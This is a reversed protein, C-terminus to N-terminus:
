SEKPRRVVRQPRLKAATLRTIDRDNSLKDPTRTFNRAAYVPERDPWATLEPQITDILKGSQAQPESACLEVSIM